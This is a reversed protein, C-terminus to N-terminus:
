VTENMIKTNECIMMDNEPLPNEFPPGQRGGVTKKTRNMSWKRVM